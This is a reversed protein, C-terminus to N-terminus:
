LEIFGMNQSSSPIETPCIHQRELMTKTMTQRNDDFIELFCWLKSTMTFFDDPILITM